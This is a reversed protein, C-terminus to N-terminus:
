VLGFVNRSLSILYIHQFLTLTVPHESRQARQSPSSGPCSAARRSSPPTHCPTSCEGLSIPSFLTCNPPPNHAPCRNNSSLLPDGTGAQPFSLPHGDRPGDDRPTPHTFTVKRPKGSMFHPHRPPSHCLGTGALQPLMHSFSHAPPEAGPCHEWGVLSVPLQTLAALRSWNLLPM